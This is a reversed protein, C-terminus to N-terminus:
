ATSARWRTTAVRLWWLPPGVGASSVFQSTSASGHRRRGRTPTPAPSTMHESRKVVSFKRNATRVVAYPGYEKMRGRVVQQAKSWSGTKSYQNGISVAEKKLEQAAKVFADQVPKRRLEEPLDKLASELQAFTREDIQFRIM